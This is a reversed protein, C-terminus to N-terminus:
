LDVRSQLESTHEESRMDRVADEVLVAEKKLLPHAQSLGEGFASSTRVKHVVYDVVLGYSKIPERIVAALKALREGPGQMGALASRFRTTYPFLPSLPL